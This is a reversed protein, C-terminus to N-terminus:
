SEFEQSRSPDFELFYYVVSGAKTVRVECIGLKAQRDLEQQIQEVSWAGELAASAPTVVGAHSKATRLVCKEISEPPPSPTQTTLVLYGDRRNADEVLSNMRLFDHVSGVFFAGGTLLWLVGTPIKRLYFRHLGFMGLGGVFWLLYAVWLQYFPEPTTPRSRFM